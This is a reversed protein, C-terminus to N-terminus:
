ALSFDRSVLGPISKCIRRRAVFKSGVSHTPAAPGACETPSSSFPWPRGNESWKERSRLRAQSFYPNSGLLYPLACTEMGTEILQRRSASQWSESLQGPFHASQQKGVPCIGPHMSRAIKRTRPSFTISSTSRARSEAPDLM